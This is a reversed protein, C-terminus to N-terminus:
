LTCSALALYAAIRARVVNFEKVALDLEAERQRRATDVLDFSTGSGNIFAVKALRATEAAIERARTSVKLNAEAVNVSRETQVVEVTARRRADTLTERALDVTAVKEAKQGARLSGDYLTWSLTAGIDWTYHLHNPSAREIPVYGLNSVADVRPWYSWNVANVDREAIAVQAQAAKLDPRTSLDGNRKCTTRADQGLSSLRIDPTVGYADTSGLALGLAERSRLVAENTTVVQARALEVNQEARLVDLTSSAGLAARRKNLDLTSLASGLSVRSVEALREATVTQVIADALVAIVQREAEDEDLKAADISLAATKEDYWVRPAFIPMRATLGAYFTTSPDPVLENQGTIPNRERSLLLYQKLDASATLTPLAGSHSQRARAAAQQIRALASKLSSSSRRVLAVADRWSRLVHSAAPPPVLMPDAIDPLAPSSPAEASSTPAAPASAPAPQAHAWGSLTWTGLALALFAKKM